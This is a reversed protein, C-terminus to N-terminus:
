GDNNDAICITKDIQTRKSSNIMQWITKVSVINEATLNTPVVKKERTHQNLKSKGL